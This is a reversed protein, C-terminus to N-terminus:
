GRDHGGALTFGYGGAPCLADCVKRAHLIRYVRMRELAESLPSAKRKRDGPQRRDTCTKRM